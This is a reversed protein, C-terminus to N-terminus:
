LRGYILYSDLIINQMDKKVDYIINKKFENKSM